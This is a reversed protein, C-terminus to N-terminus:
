HSLVPQLALNPLAQMAHLPWRSADRVQDAIGVRDSMRLCARASPRSIPSVNFASRSFPYRYCFRVARPARPLRFELAKEPLM